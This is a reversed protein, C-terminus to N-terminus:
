DKFLASSFDIGGTLPDYMINECGKSYFFYKSCYALPIFRGDSLLMEEAKKSLELSEATDALRSQAILGTYEEGMESYPYEGGNAFAGLVSDPRNYEGDLKTLAITFNGTSIAKDYEEQSLFSIGCYLELNKQWSQTVTQVASIIEDDRGEVAIVSLKSLLSGDIQKLAQQYAAQARVPDTKATLVDGAYERYNRGGCFFSPAVAADAKSYGYPLAIDETEAAFMLAYRLFDNKLAPNKTNMVLGYVSTKFEDYQHGEKSLTQATEGSAALCKTTESEFDTIVEEEPVIFFNLGYPCVETKESYKKNVRLVLHNDEHSWPDYYWDDLYFAGNSPTAEASFGYKGQAKDFYDECCPMAAPLTLMYLFMPEPKALKIILTNDDKAAVGLRGADSKGKHLEEANQICYFKEAAQARTEPAFLRTFGYVYDKATCKKSYGNVDTWYRDDRLKFTYTLGDESVEWSEAGAALLNGKNDCKVLGEFICGILLYSEDDAACQPDLSGPNSTIDYAFVHGKGDDETCGSFLSAIVFIIALLFVARKM